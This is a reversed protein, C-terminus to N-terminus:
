LNETEALWANLQEQWRGKAESYMKEREVRVPNGYLDILVGSDDLHTLSNLLEPSARWLGGSMPFVLKAEYKEKLAIKRQAFDFQKRSLTLLKESM